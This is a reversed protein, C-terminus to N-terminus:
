LLFDIKQFQMYNYNEYVSRFSCFLRILVNYVHLDVHFVDLHLLSPLVRLQHGNPRLFEASSELM